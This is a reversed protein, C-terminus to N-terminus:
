TEEMHVRALRHRVTAPTLDRLPISEGCPTLRNLLASSFRRATTAEGSRGTVDRRCQRAENLPLLTM